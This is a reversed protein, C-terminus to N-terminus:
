QKKTKKRNKVLARLPGASPPACPPFTSNKSRRTLQWTGLSYRSGCTLKRNILRIFEDPSFQLEPCYSGCPRWLRRFSGCRLFECNRDCNMGRYTSRTYMRILACSHNTHTKRSPEISGHNTIRENLSLYPTHLIQQVVAKGYWRSVPPVGCSVAVEPPSTDQGSHRQTFPSKPHIGAVLPV